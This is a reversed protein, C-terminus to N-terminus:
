ATPKGLESFLTVNDWYATISTIQAKGNLSILFAHPLEFRHGESPIDELERQQRGGIVVETAVSQEGGFMSQVVVSLNPVARFLASWFYAGVERVEGEGEAGMPVFNVRADKTCLMIMKNLDHENFASFFSSVLDFSVSRNSVISM